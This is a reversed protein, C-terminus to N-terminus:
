GLVHHVGHEANRRELGKRALRFGQRIDMLRNTSMEEYTSWLKMWKWAPPDSEDMLELILKNRDMLKLIILINSIDLPENSRGTCLFMPPTPTNVLRKRHAFAM